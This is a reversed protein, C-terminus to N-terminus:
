MGRLLITRELFMYTTMQSITIDVASSRKDYGFVHRLRVDEKSAKPCSPLRTICASYKGFSGIEWLPRRGRRAAVVQNPNDSVRTVMRRTRSPLSFAMLIPRRMKIVVCDSSFNTPTDFHSAGGFRTDRTETEKRDLEITRIPKM